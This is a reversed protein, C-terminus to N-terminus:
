RPSCSGLLVYRTGAPGIAGDRDVVLLAGEGAAALADRDSSTPAVVTLSEDPVVVREVTGDARHVEFTGDDPAAVPVPPASALDVGDDGVTVGPLPTRALAAATFVIVHTHDDGWGPVSTSVDAVPLAAAGEPGPDSSCAAAAILVTTALAALRVRTGLARRHRM